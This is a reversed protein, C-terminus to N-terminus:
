KSSRRLRRRRYDLTDMKVGRCVECLRSVGARGIKEELEAMTCNTTIIMPKYDEYRNNIITYLVQDVWDSKKEKGLDDIILLDVSSMVSIVQSDSERSDESYTQKIRSLLNVINGFLVPVGRNMLEIAIAAALHTKGTGVTGSFLLGEGRKAHEEFNEVYQKAISYAGKTEPTVQFNEFTRTLFRAPMQSSRYLREIKEQRRKREAALREEEAQRRREADYKEWYETAGPCDCRPPYQWQLIVGPRLPHELPIYRRVEGCFECKEPMPEPENMARRAASFNTMTTNKLLIEKVSEM